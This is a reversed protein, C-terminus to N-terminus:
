RKFNGLLAADLSILEPSPLSNQFSPIGSGSKTGWAWVSVNTCNPDSQL